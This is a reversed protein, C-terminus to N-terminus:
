FMMKLTAGWYDIDGNDTYAGLVWQDQYDESSYEPIIQVGPALNVPLNIWWSSQATEDERFGTVQREYTVEGYGAQISIMDNIKYSGAVCFGLADVDDISDTAVEYYSALPNSFIYGTFFNNGEVPNESTWITGGFGFPGFGARITTGFVYSDMDYSKNISTDIADWTVYDGFLVISLPGFGFTYSAALKPMTMDVDATAPFTVPVALGLPHFIAGLGAPDNVTPEPEVLSVSLGGIKLNIQENHELFADGFGNRSARALNAVPNMTPSVMYGITLTGAGFNWGINYWSMGENVFPGSPNFYAYSATIDGVNVLFHINALPAYPTWYIDTDDTLIGWGPNREKSQEAWGMNYSIMGMININKDAAVATTAPGAFPVLLAAAVILIFFKKM